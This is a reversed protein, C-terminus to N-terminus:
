FKKTFVISTVDRSVQQIETQFFDDENPVLHHIARKEHFCNLWNEIQTEFWQKCTRSSKLIKCCKEHHTRGRRPAEEWDAVLVKSRIWEVIDSHFSPKLPKADTKVFSKVKIKSVNPINQNQKCFESHSRACLWRHDAMLVLFTQGKFAM